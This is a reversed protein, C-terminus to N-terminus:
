ADPDSEEGDATEEAIEGQCVDELMSLLVIQFWLRFMGYSRDAPWTAEDTCWGYLEREFLVPYAEKLMALGQAEDDFPPVLYVTPEDDLRPPSTAFDLSAVWEIFPQAPRVVVASRNLM